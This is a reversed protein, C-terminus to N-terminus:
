YLIPQGTSEGTIIEPELKLGKFKDLKGTLRQLLIEAAKEGLECIPVSLTTLRPSLLSAIPLNNCGSVSIDEPVKLGKAKLYQVIAAAIEDDLTIIASVRDASKLLFDVTKSVDACEFGIDIINERRMKIGNDLCATTVGAKFDRSISIKDGGYLLAINKHGLGALHEVILSGAKQFDILVANGELGPFYNKVFLHPINKETLTRIINPDIQWAGILFAAYINSLKTIDTELGSRRSVLIDLMYGHKKLVSDLGRIMMAVLPHTSYEADFIILAIKKLVDPTKTRVFTGKGRVRYLYGENELEKMAQRITNRSLGYRKMLEPESPVRANYELEGSRIRDVFYKKLEQYKFAKSHVSM